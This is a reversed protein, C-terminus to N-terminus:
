QLLDRREPATVGTQDGATTDILEGKGSAEVMVPLASAQGRDRATSNDTEAAKFSCALM